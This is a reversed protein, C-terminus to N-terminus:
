QGSFKRWLVVELLQNIQALARSIEEVTIIDGLIRNMEYQQVPKIDMTELIILTSFDSIDHQDECLQIENAKEM